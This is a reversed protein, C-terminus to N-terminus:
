RNRVINITKRLAYFLFPCACLLKWQYDRFGSQQLQKKNMTMFHEMEKAKKRATTDTAVTKLFRMTESGYFSWLKDALMPYYTRIFAFREMDMDFWDIAERSGFGGGLISDGRKRYNYTCASSLYISHANAFLKYTTGIDEYLMGEPYRIDKFLSAKYIKNWAFSLIKGGHLEMLAEEPTFSQEQDQSVTQIVTHDPYVDRYGFVVIDADHQSASELAKSCFDKDVWDDSDVCMVWEGTMVDLAANRASSLGGNQKHIVKIREDRQAYEDCIRGCDDPSGDDVLIIELHAYDQLILSDVCQRLYPAVNYIPVILSILPQRM